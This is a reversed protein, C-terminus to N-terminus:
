EEWGSEGGCPCGPVAVVPLITGGYPIQFGGCAGVVSVSEVAAQKGCLFFLIDPSVKVSVNKRAAGVLLLCPGSTRNGGVRVSARNVCECAAMILGFKNSAWVAM